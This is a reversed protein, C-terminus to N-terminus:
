EISKGRDTLPTRPQVKLVPNVSVIFSPIDVVLFILPLALTSRSRGVILEPTM